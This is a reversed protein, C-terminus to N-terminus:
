AESSTATGVERAKCTLNRSEAGGAHARPPRGVLPRKLWLATWMRLTDDVCQRLAGSNQLARLRRVADQEIGGHAARM